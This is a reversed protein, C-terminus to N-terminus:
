KNGEATKENFMQVIKQLDRTTMKKWFMMPNGDNGIKNIDNIAFKVAHHKEDECDLIDIITTPYENAPLDSANFNVPLIEGDPIEEPKM